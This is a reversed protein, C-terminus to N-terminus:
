FKEVIEANSLIKIGNKIYVVNEIRCGFNKTYIGPEITFVMGNKLEEESNPSINPLEHVDLGIGHGLSHQLEYNSSTKIFENIYKFIESAKKTYSMIELTKQYAKSMIEIIKRKGSNLEGLIFPVTIDCCYGKYRIGFDIICFNGIMKYSYQPYPHIKSLRKGSAVIPNFALSAEEYNAIVGKIMKVIENEKTKRSINEKIEDICYKAIKCAFKIRRIEYDSKLKRLRILDKGIDVLKKGKLFRKISLPFNEENIGIVKAKELNELLNEKSIPNKKKIIELNREKINELFSIILKAKNDLIILFCPIEQFPKSIIYDINREIINKTNVLLIADLDKEKIIYNIKKIKKLIM